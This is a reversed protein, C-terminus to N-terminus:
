FLGAFFEKISNGVKSFFGSIGSKAISAGDIHNLFDSGFQEYLDAAQDLLMNPDLGLKKIKNMVDVIQQIESEDLQVGFQEEGEEIAARIDEETDLEGAALKAKIYAILAEVDESDAGDIADALEGTTIMENLAVDLTDDSIEEGSLLEYGKVAGILAATGSLQTPGVVLIDADEVGATLLANRYMGTTCYSINQTTVLVGHGSEKPTILVSSLSKSGIVSPDIYSDLYQHEMDNTIYIVNYDALETETIGMLSLVQSRQEASLDAGLAVLPKTTDVTEETTEAVETAHIQMAFAFVMICTLLLYKKLRKMM